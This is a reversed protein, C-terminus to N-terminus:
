AVPRPKRQNKLQQCQQQQEPTLVALIKQETQEHAQKLQPQLGVIQAEIAQSKSVDGAERAARQQEMLSRMQQMLPRNQERSATWIQEIQQKQTDTLNLQSLWRPSGHKPHHAETPAAEPTQAFAAPGSALVALAALLAIPRKM